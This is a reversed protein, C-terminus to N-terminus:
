RNTLKYLNGGAACTSFAPARAKHDGAASQSGSQGDSGFYRRRGFRRGRREGITWWLACAPEYVLWALVRAKTGPYLTRGSRLRRTAPLHRAQLKGLGIWAAYDIKEYEMNM